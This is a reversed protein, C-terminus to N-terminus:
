GTAWGTLGDRDFDEFTLKSKMMPYTENLVDLDM